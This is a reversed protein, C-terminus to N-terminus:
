ITLLYDPYTWPLPQYSGDKSLYVNESYVGDRIYTRHSYSKFTSLTLNEPQILGIDINVARNLDHRYLLELEYSKLKLEVFLERSCPTSCIYFIRELDKIDGMEQSYYDKMPFYHHSLSFLNEELLTQALRKIEKAVLYDRNYLFSAFALSQTPVKPHSM